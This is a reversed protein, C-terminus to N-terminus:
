RMMVTDGLSVRREETILGVVAAGSEQAIDLANLICRYEIFKSAHLYLVRDEPVAALLAKLASELAEARIPRKNLYYSGDRDIGLTRDSPAPPYGRVHAASPVDVHLGGGGFAPTIFMFVLLLVLLVDLMPTVSPM